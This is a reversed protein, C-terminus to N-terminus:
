SRSEGTRRTAARAKAKPTAAGAVGGFALVLALVAVAASQVLLGRV